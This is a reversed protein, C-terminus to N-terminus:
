RRGGTLMSYCEYEKHGDALCQQMLENRLTFSAWLGVFLLAIIVAFGGVALKGANDWIWNSM